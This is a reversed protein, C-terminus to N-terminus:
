RDALKLDAPFHGGLGSIQVGGPAYHNVKDMVLARGAGTNLAVFAGGVVLVALLLIAIVLGALIRFVRGIL